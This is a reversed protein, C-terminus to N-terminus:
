DQYEQNRKEQLELLRDRIERASELNDANMYRRTIRDMVVDDARDAELLNIEAM